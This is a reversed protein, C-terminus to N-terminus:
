REETDECTIANKSRANERRREHAFYITQKNGSIQNRHASYISTQKNKHSPPFSDLNM